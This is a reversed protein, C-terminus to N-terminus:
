SLEAAPLAVRFTAGQSEVAEASVRGGHRRVIRDVIALGVGVGEYREDDHLRRFVAFLKTARQAPFGIGNDAISVVHDAGDREATVRIEARERSRTFKFANALLNYFVQHLLTPDGRVVPLPDVVVDVARSGEASRVGFLAREVVETLDVDSTRLEQRDVRSLSLLGDLLQGMRKVESRMVGIVRRGEADMREGHDDLLIRSYGDVARLPARLDHSVSYTFADLERNARELDAQRSTLDSNLSRSTDTARRLGRMRQLLLGFFVFYFVAAGVSLVASARLNGRASADARSSRELLRARASQELDEMRLRLSDQTKKAEIKTIDAATAELGLARRQEIRGEMTRLRETVLREIDAVMRREEPEDQTLVQLAAMEDLLLPRVEHYPALLADEGSMVYAFLANEAEHLRSEAGEAHEIVRHTRRIESQTRLTERADGVTGWGLAVLFALSLALAVILLPEQRV